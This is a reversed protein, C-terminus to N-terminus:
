MIPLVKLVNSNGPNGELTGQVIIAVGGSKAVGIKKAYDMAMQILQDSGVMSKVLLPLIARTLLLFNATCINDTVCIIPVRPRYKAVLRGTTGSETLIILISAGLDNAARV